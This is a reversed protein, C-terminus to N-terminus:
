SVLRTPSDANGQTELCLGRHQCINLLQRRDAALFLLLQSVAVLSRMSAVGNSRTCERTNAEQHGDRYRVGHTRVILRRRNIRVRLGVVDVGRTLILWAPHSSPVLCGESDLGLCFALVRSHVRLLPTALM